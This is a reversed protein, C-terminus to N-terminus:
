FVGNTTKIDDELTPEAKEKEKIDKLLKKEQNNLHNMQGQAYKIADTIVVGNTTLDMIYKYCDNILSLAPLITRDNGTTVTNSDIGEKYDQGNQRSNGNDNNNAIQWSLKLVQNGELCRQYKKLCNTKSIRRLNEQARTQSWHFYVNKAM